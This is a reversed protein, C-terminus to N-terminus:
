NTGNVNEEKEAVIATDYNANGSTFNAGECAAKEKCDCIEGPDLRARCLHCVRYMM